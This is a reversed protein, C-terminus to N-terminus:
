KNEVYWTGENGDVKDKGECNVMLESGDSNKFPKTQMYSKFKRRDHELAFQRWYVNEQTLAQLGIEQMRAMAQRESAIVNWNTKEEKVKELENRMEEMKTEASERRKIEDSLKDSLAQQAVTHASLSNSTSLQLKAFRDASTELRERLSDVEAQLIRNRDLVSEYEKVRSGMTEYMNEDLKSLRSMLEEQFTLANQSMEIISSETALKPKDAEEQDEKHQLLRQELSQIKEKQESIQSLQHYIQSQMDMIESEKQKISRESNEREKELQEQYERLESRLGDELDRRETLSRALADRELEAALARAVVGDLEGEMKNQRASMSELQSMVGETQARMEDRDQRTDKLRQNLVDAQARSESISIRNDEIEERLASIIARQSDEERARQEAAQQTYQLAEIAQSLTSSGSIQTSAVEDFKSLIAHQGTLIAAFLDKSQTQSQEEHAEEAEQNTPTPPLNVIDHLSTLLRSHEELVSAVRELMDPKDSHNQIHHQSIIDQLASVVLDKLGDLDEKSRNRMGDRKRLLDLMEDLREDHVSVKAAMGGQRASGLADEDDDLDVNVVGLKRKDERMHFEVSTRRSIEEEARLYARLESVRSAFTSAVGMTAEASIPPSILEDLHDEAPMTHRRTISPRINHGPGNTSSPSSIPFTWERFKINVTLPDPSPEVENVEPPLEPSPTASRDFGRTRRSTDIDVKPYVLEQDDGDEETEGYDELMEVPDAVANGSSPAPTSVPIPERWTPIDPLPRRLRKPPTNDTDVFIRTPILPSGDATMYAASAFTDGTSQPPTTYEDAKAPGSFTFSGNSPTVDKSNPIMPLPRSFSPRATHALVESGISGEGSLATTHASVPADPEEEVHPRPILPLQVPHSPHITIEKLPIIPEKLPLTPTDLPHYSNEEARRMSPRDDRPPRDSSMSRSRESSHSVESARSSRESVSLRPSAERIGLVDHGTVSPATLLPKEFFLGELNVVSDGIREEEDEDPQLGSEDKELDSTGDGIPSSPGFAVTDARGRGPPAVQLGSEVSDPRHHEFVIEAPTLIPDNSSPPRALDQVEDIDEESSDQTPLDFESSANVDAKNPSTVLITSTASDGTDFESRTQSTALSKVPSTVTVSSAVSAPPVFPIASPQLRPKTPSSISGYSPVFTTATPRLIKEGNSSTLSAARNRTDPFPFDFGSTKTPSTQPPHFALASPRLKKGKLSSSYASGQRQHNGGLQSVDHPASPPILPAASPTFSPQNGLPMFDSSTARPVFPPAAPIISPHIPSAFTFSTSRPVFSQANPNVVPHSSSITFNFLTSRPVFLKTDPPLRPAISAAKPTKTSIGLAGYGPTSAPPKWPEATPRLRKAQPSTADAQNPGTQSTINNDVNEGTSSSRKNASSVGSGEHIMNVPDVAMVTDSPTVADISKAGKKKSGKTNQVQALLVKLKALSAAESASTEKAKLAKQRLQESESPRKDLTIAFDSPQKQVEDGNKSWNFPNPDRITSVPIEQSWARMKSEGQPLDDEEGDEDRGRKELRNTRIEDVEEVPKLTSEEWPRIKSTETATLPVDEFEESTDFKDNQWRDVEDSASKKHAHANDPIRSPASLAEVVNTDEELGWARMKSPEPSPTCTNLRSSSGPYISDATYEEPQDGDFDDSKVAGSHSASALPELRAPSSVPERIERDTKTSMSEVGDDSWARMKSGTKPAIDVDDIQEQTIPNQPLHGEEVFGRFPQEFRAPSSMSEPELQDEEEWLMNPEDDIWARMRSGSKPSSDTDTKSKSEKFIVADNESSGNRESKSPQQDFQEIFVAPNVMRAPSSISMKEDEEGSVEDEAENAHDSWARIKSKGKQSPPPGTNMGITGSSEGKIGIADYQKWSGVSSGQSKDRVHGTSSISTTRPKLEEPDKLVRGLQKKLFDANGLPSDSFSRKSPNILESSYSPPPPDDRTVPRAPLSPHPVFRFPKSTRDGEVHRDDVDVHVDEKVDPRGPSVPYEDWPIDGQQAPASDEVMNVSRTDEGDEDEAIPSTPMEDGLVVSVEAETGEHEELEEAETESSAPPRLREWCDEDPFSVLVPKGKWMGEKVEQEKDTPSDVSPRRLTDEGPQDPSLPLPVGTPSLRVRSSPWPFAEKRPRREEEMIKGEGEAMEDQDGVPLGPSEPLPLPKPPSDPPSYTSPPLRFTIPNGKYRYGPNSSAGSVPRSSTSLEGVSSPGKSPSLNPSTKLALMEDFTKGGPGGLVAKPPGGEKARYGRYKRESSPLSISDQRRQGFNPSLSVIRRDDIPSSVSRSDYPASIVSHSPSVRGQQIQTHLPSLTLPLGQHCQNLPSLSTRSSSDLTWARNLPPPPTQFTQAPHTNFQPSVTASRSIGLMARDSTCHQSDRQLHLTPTPTPMAPRFTPAPQPIMHPPPDYNTLTQTPIPENNTSYSQNYHYNIPQNPPTFEMARALAKKRPSVRREYTEETPDGYDIGLASPDDHYRKLRSVGDNVSTSVELPRFSFSSALPNLQSPRRSHGYPEQPYQTQPQSVSRVPVDPPLPPFRFNQNLPHPQVTRPPPNFPPASPDISHNYPYM